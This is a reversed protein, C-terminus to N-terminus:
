CPLAGRFGQLTTIDETKDTAGPIRGKKYTAACVGKEAAAAAVYGVGAVIEVCDLDRPLRMWEHSNLVAAVTLGHVLFTQCRKWAALPLM